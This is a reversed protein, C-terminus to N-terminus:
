TASRAAQRLLKRAAQHLKRAKSATSTTAEDILTEAKTLKATLSAPISEGACPTSTGVGALVCRATTCPLTTTTSSPATTTTPPATTRTSTTVVVLTTSTTAVVVTTSTTARNTTSTTAVVTTSTTATITTTTTAVIITTTTSPVGTTTTSVLTSTTSTSSTTSAISTTTSTSAPVTTTTTCAPNPAHLCGLIVDCTDLTCPHPADCAVTPCPARCSRCPGHAAAQHCTGPYDLHGNGCTPCPILCNVPTNPGTCIPAFTVDSQVLAPSFAPSGPFPSGTPLKVFNRSMPDGGTTRIAAGAAIT